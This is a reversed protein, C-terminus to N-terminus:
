SPRHLSIHTIVHLRCLDLPAPLPPQPGPHWLGASVETLRSGSSLSRNAEECTGVWSQSCGYQKRCLCLRSLARHIAGLGEWSGLTSGKQCALQPCGWSKGLGKRQTDCFTEHKASGPSGLLFTSLRNKRTDTFYLIPPCLPAQPDGIIERGRGRLPRV